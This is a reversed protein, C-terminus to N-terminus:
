LGRTISSVYLDLWNARHRQQDTWDAVTATWLILLIRRQFPPYNLPGNISFFFKLLYDDLAQKSNRNSVLKFFIALSRCAPLVTFDLNM